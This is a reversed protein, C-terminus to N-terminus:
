SGRWWVWRAARSSPRGGCGPRGGRSGRGCRRRSRCRTLRGSGPWGGGRNPRRVGARGVDACGVRGASLAPLQCGFKSAGKGSGRTWATMRTAMRRKRAPRSGWELLEPAGVEGGGDGAQAFLGHDGAEAGRGGGHVLIAVVQAAVGVTAGDEDHVGVLIGEDGDASSLAHAGEVRPGVVDSDGVFAM